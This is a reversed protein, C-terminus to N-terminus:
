FRRPATRDGVKVVYSVPGDGPLEQDWSAGAYLRRAPLARCIGTAACQQGQFLEANTNGLNHLILHQGQHEAVVREAPRSPRLIVLVDYGVLIKLATQSATVNGVVPKVVVRWIRDRQDRKALAAIRLLRRQGPELVMRGPSVLLGLQEPDRQSVRRESPLGPDIVESPEAVVYIPEDGTNWVEIDDRPPKDPTLDVIVQSLSLDAQARGAPGLLLLLAAAHCFSRWRFAMSTRRKTKAQTM